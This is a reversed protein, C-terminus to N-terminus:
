GGLFHSLTQELNSGRLDIGTAIIIGKPNVLIPRPIAHVEFRQAIKNNFGGKLFAHNWPMKFRNKRFKMVDKPSDDLSLSLVTFNKSKYKKYANTINGLERICPGCWTAWFDIMYYKGLMSKKSFIVNHNTLSTVKFNPVPKGVAVKQNMAFQSRALDAYSTNSYKNTLQDYYQKAKKYNGNHYAENLHYFIVTAKVNQDNQSKEAHKLYSGYKKSKGTADIAIVMDLPQISWFQSTPSILQLAQHAISPDLNQAGYLGMDFYSLMLMKKAQDNSEKKIENSVNTLYRSWDYNFSSPPNGANKYKNYASMYNKQRQLMNQYADSVKKITQSTNTLVLRPKLDAVPFKKPDFVVKVKKKDTNIISVYNGSGDYAYRDAETGNVPRDPNPGIIQYALFSSDSPVTAMYTGNTQKKMPIADAYSFHNFPGIVYLKSPHTNKFSSSLFASIKVDSPNNLDLITSSPLHDVGTFQIKYIGPHSIKIAFHGSKDAKYSRIAKDNGLPALHVDARPLVKENSGKITGSIVPVKNKSCATLTLLSVITLLLSLRLKQIM